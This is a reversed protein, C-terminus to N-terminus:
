FLRQYLEQVEGLAIIEIHHKAPQIGKKNFRSVFIKEFGLKEAEAIRQEIRNVARIEGNLGVEGAFCIHPPLAVDEYSSLLAAIIALDISPDEVKLGGAINIFVDKTGFLFGGRKELVALLLQLRRLDFGSVTRQPTGYVSQTVLAQVEILLPRIGEVTAAIASGSLENDRQTLLIESPNTVEKMGEGTMEYIGLEATSGFRNKLTRLIRYTYHRDGEFQLVTDVMHELIKPGAITGDKTIHGILFVPTNTEKAFRQFEAACERIQSISGAGSDILNSQLTQISDVIVLQPQLKKIENFISQTTTETLLYFSPHKVQIRDARMKIQQESEEGSIYLVTLSQLALGIQLFLTSKGIGPEGAVLVISGAVIGGGLVRNLENDTTITRQTENHTVADLAIAKNNKLQSGYNSWNQEKNNGKDIVEEIFTNWNNCAPCKGLWKASEYGCNSCFFATKIKSM